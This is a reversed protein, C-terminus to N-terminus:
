QSSSSNSKSSSSSSSQAHSYFSGKSSINVTVSQKTQNCNGESSRVISKAEAIMKGDPSVIRKVVVREREM